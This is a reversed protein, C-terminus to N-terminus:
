EVHWEEFLVDGVRERGDDFMLSNFQDQIERRLRNIGVKGRVDEMTKDALHSTLWTRLVPMRGEMASKVASEDKADAMLTLDISLYKTLSPENLNVVIRGFPLYQPGTKPPAGHDGAKGHDGGGKGHDDAKAAGHDDKAPATAHPDANGHGDDKAATKDGHGDDHESGETDAHAVKTGGSMVLPIAVGVAASIAGVGVILLTKKLNM